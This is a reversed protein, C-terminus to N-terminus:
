FELVVKGFSKNSELYKYAERVEVFSYVRDLNPKV